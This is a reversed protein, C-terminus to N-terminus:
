RRRGSGAYGGGNWNCVQRSSCQAEPPTPVLSAPMACCKGKYLDALTDGSGHHYLGVLASAQGNVDPCKAANNGPAEFMDIEVCDGWAEVGAFRSCEGMTIQHGGRASRDYRSGERYLGSLWAGAPCLAPEGSALLGPWEVEEVTPMAGGPVNVVKHYFGERVQHLAGLSNATIAYLVTGTPVRSWGTMDMSMSWRNVSGSSGRSNVIRPGLGWDGDYVQETSADLTFVTYGRSSGASEPITYRGQVADAHYLTVIAESSGITGDRYSYNDVHFKVLCNSTCSGVGMFTTTEPGYGNVDDWDLTVSVGSSRGSRRTRGYYVYSGLNSDFYTWSDLDRSHAGWNMVVRWGDAPLVASMAIDAGQGRRVTGTVTVNEEVTIWNNKTARVMYVGAPVEISYRGRNSTTASAVTQDGQMFSLAVDGLKNYGNQANVVEGSVSMRPAECPGQNPTGALFDGQQGCSTEYLDPGGTVGGVTYGDECVVMAIEGYTLSQDGLMTFEPDQRLRRGSIAHGGRRHTQHKAAVLGHHVDPSKSQLLEFFGPGPILAVANSGVLPAGCSCPLCEPNATSLDLEGSATCEGGFFMTSESVAGGLYFGTECTWTVAQGYEISGTASSAANAHEPVPCSVPECIPNEDSFSGDAECTLTFSAAGGVQGGITHGNSCEFHVSDGFVYASQPNPVNTQSIDPIFTNDCQVPVCYEADATLPPNFLGSGECIVRFTKSEVHTTGDTSYGDRCTYTVQDFSELIANGFLVAIEPVNGAFTVVRVDPTGELTESIHAIAAV